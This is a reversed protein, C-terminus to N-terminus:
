AREYIVKGRSIVDKIFPDGLLLREDTEKPTHVIIDVPLKRDAFYRMLLRYIEQERAPRPQKVQKVIFLDLDSDKDPKGWAFSGYLIIKQPQYKSVLLKKIKDIEISVRIQM